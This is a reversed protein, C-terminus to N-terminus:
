RKGLQKQKKAVEAAKWLDGATRVIWWKRIRSQVLVEPKRFLWVNNLIRSSLQPQPFSHLVARRAGPLPSCSISWSGPRSLSIGRCGRSVSCDMETKLILSSFCCVHSHALNKFQRNHKPTHIWLSLWCIWASPCCPTSADYIQLREFIVIVSLLIFVFCQLSYQM